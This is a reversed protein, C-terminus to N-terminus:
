RWEWKRLKQHCKVSEIMMNTYGRTVRNYDKKSLIDSRIERTYREINRESTKAMSIAYKPSEPMYKQLAEGHRTLFGEETRKLMRVGTLLEEKDNTLIGQQIHMLGKSLTQMTGQLEQQEPTKAEEPQAAFLLPTVIGLMLILKKM